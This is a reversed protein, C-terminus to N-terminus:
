NKLTLKSNFIVGLSRAKNELKIEKNSMTVRISSQDDSIRGAQILISETKDVVCKTQTKQLEDM